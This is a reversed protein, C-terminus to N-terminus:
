LLLRSIKFFFLFACTTVHFPLPSSIKKKFFFQCLFLIPSFHVAIGFGQLISKENMVSSHAKHVKLVQSFYKAKWPSLNM